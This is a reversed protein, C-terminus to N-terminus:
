RPFNEHVGILKPSGAVSARDFQDQAREYKRMSMGSAVDWGRGNHWKCIGQVGESFLLFWFFSCIWNPLQDILFYM